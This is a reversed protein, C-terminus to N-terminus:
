NEFLVEIKQCLIDSNLCCSFQGLLMIMMMIMIMVMGPATAMTSRLGQGGTGRIGPSQLRSPGQPEGKEKQDKKEKNNM